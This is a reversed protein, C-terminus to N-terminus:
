KEGGQQSEGLNFVQRAPDSPVMRVLAMIAAAEDESVFGIKCEIFRLLEEEAGSRPSRPLPICHPAQLRWENKLKRM